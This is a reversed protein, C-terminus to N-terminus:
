RLKFGNGRIRGSCVRTCLREGARKLYQLTSQPREAAKEEGLQAAGTFPISTTYLAGRVLYERWKQGLVGSAVECGPVLWQKTQHTWQWQFTEFSAWIKIKIERKSDQGRMVLKVAWCICGPCVCERRWLCHFWQCKWCPYKSEWRHPWLGLGWEQLLWCSSLECLVRERVETKECAQYPYQQEQVSHFYLCKQPRASYHNRIQWSPWLKVM